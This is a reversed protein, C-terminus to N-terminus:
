SMGVVSRLRSNAEVVATTSQRQRLLRKALPPSTMKTAAAINQLVEIAKQELALAREKDLTGKEQIRQRVLLLTSRDKADFAKLVVEFHNQADELLESHLDPNTAEEARRINALGADLHQIAEALQPSPNSQLTLLDALALADEDEAETQRQVEKNEDETTVVQTSVQENKQPAGVSGNAEVVATATRETEESQTRSVVVTKSSFFSRVRLRVAAVAAVVKRLVSRVFLALSLGWQVLAPPDWLVQLRGEADEELSISGLGKPLTIPNKVQDKLVRALFYSLPGKLTAVVKRRKAAGGGGGGGGGQGPPRIGFSFNLTLILYLALGLLLHELVFMWSVWDM